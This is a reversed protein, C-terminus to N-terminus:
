KGFSTHILLVFGKDSDDWINSFYNSRKEQDWYVHASVHETYKNPGVISLTLAGTSKKEVYLGVNKLKKSLEDHPEKPEPSAQKTQLDERAFEEVEQADTVTVTDHDDDEHLVSLLETRASVTAGLAELRASTSESLEEHENSTAEQLLRLQGVEASSDIEQIMAKAARSRADPFVSELSNNFDRIETVLSSFKKRDHIAWMTKRVIPTTRQRDQALKRLHQYAKKFVGELILQTQSLQVQNGSSGVTSEQYLPQLGYVEQLRDSNEFVHQICGLLRVVMTQVEVRKFCPDPSPRSESQSQNSQNSLGVADGWCLLRVREVELKVCLLEYDMGYRRTSQIVGFLDVCNRWLAAVGLAVGAAEAM